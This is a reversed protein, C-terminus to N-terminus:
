RLTAFGVVEFNAVCEGTGVVEITRGELMSNLILTDLASSFAFRRYVMRGDPDTACAPQNVPLDAFEVRVFNGFFFTNTARISVVTSEVQGAFVNSVSLCLCVSFAIKAINNKM